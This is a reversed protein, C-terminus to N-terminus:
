TSITHLIVNLVKVLNSCTYVHLCHPKGEAQSPKTPKNKHIIQLWSGYEKLCVSLFYGWPNIIYCKTLPSTPGFLETEQVYTSTTNRIDGDDSIALCRVHLHALHKNKNRHRAIVICPFNL